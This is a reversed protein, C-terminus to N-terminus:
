SICVSVRIPKKFEDRYNNGFQQFTADPCAPKRLKRDVDGLARDERSISLKSTLEQDDAFVQVRRIKILRTM